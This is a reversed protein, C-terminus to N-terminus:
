WAAHLAFTDTGDNDWDGVLVTDTPTGFEFDFQAEGGLFENNVYFTQGRQMTTTQEGDGDFDGIHVVDGARGYAFEREAEGGAFDNRLMILNGRRVGFTDVGDGDWDGVLVEDGPRGYDMIRDAEGGSFDNDIFFRNERRVAFGDVGDGDFDGIYVVDGPRGYAVERDHTGTTNTYRLFFSNGRRYAMSDPGGATWRGAYVDTDGREGYRFVSTVDPGVESTLRFQSAGGVARDTDAVALRHHEAVQAPDLVLNYVAAEDVQVAPASSAPTAPWGGMSDMGVRWYGTMPLAGTAVKTRGVEVGDVYLVHTGDGDATGVVHHWRGDNVPEASSLVRHSYAYTGFHVRGADDLYIKRDHASSFGDVSDGMGIVQGGDSGTSRVWAEVSFVWPGRRQETSTAYASQSGDLELADDFVGGTERSAGPRAGLDGAGASDHGLVPTDFSWRHAAGDALVRRAYPREDATAGAVAVTTPAASASVTNGDRDTVEVTYTATTGPRAGRDVVVYDRAGWESTRVEREDVVTAGRRLRYTLTADDKDWTPTVLVRVEGGVRSTARVQLAATEPGVRGPAIGRRAFRVLGEQGVGNVRPFEGGVVLYDANGTVTWASQGIGSATGQSLGPFHAMLRPAPQGPWADYGPKATVTLTQATENTLSILGRHDRPEDEPFGELTACNYPHGVVHVSSGASWVDHSDGHCDEMWRLNGDWDAAAAGEFAGVVDAFGSIYFGRIDGEVATIGSNPGGNRIIEGIPNPLAAGTTADLRALGPSPAGNVDTFQGAAVVVGGDPSVALQTVSGGAVRPAFPTVAGTVLDIAAAGNRWAGQVQTISGGLYATTGSVAVARPTGQIQPAVPRLEGTVADVMAFGARPQGHVRTFQGVLVVSAGDATFALDTVRGDTPADFVTDLEGTTIDFALVNARPTLQTGPAAGAPRGAAFSGVAYVRNGRVDSELVIGDVQVTPLADATYQSDVVAGPQPEAGRADPATVVGVAGFPVALVAALAAALAPRPTRRHGPRRRATWLAPVHETM